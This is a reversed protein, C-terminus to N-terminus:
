WSCTLCFCALPATNLSKDRKVIWRYTNRYAHLLPIVVACSDSVGPRKWVVVGPPPKRFFLSADTAPFEPDEFLKKDQICSRRLEAYHQNKYPATSSFMTWITFIGLQLDVVSVLCNWAKYVTANLLLIEKHGRDALMEPCLRNCYMRHIETHSWEWTLLLRGQSGSLGQPCDPNVLSGVTYSTIPKECYQFFFSAHFEPWRSATFLTETSRTRFALTPSSALNCYYFYRVLHIKFGDHSIM